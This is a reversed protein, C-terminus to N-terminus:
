PIPATPTPLDKLDIPYNRQLPHEFKKMEEAKKKSRTAM